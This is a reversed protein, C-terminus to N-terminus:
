DGKEDSTGKEFHNACQYGAKAESRETILSSVSKIRQSTGSM